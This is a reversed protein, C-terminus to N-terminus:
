KESANGRLVRIAFVPEGEHYHSLSAGIRQKVLPQSQDFPSYIGDCIYDDRGSAPRCKFAAKGAADTFMKTLGAETETVSLKPKHLNEAMVCATVLALSGVAACHITRWMMWRSCKMVLAALSCSPTVATRLIADM